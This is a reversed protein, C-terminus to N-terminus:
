TKYVINTKVNPTQSHYTIYDDYYIILNLIIFSIILIIISASFYLVINQKPVILKIIFSILLTTYRYADLIQSSTIISVIMGFIRNSNMDVWQSIPQTTNTANLKVVFLHLYSDNVHYYHVYIIFILATMTIM